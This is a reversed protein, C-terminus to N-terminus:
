ILIDDCLEDYEKLEEGGSEFLYIKEVIVNIAGRVRTIYSERESNLDGMFCVEM